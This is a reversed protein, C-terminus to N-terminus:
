VVFNWQCLRQCMLCQLTIKGSLQAVVVTSALLVVSITTEVVSVPFDVVTTEVVSVPFDVVTTEVVSVPFDVVTTEVVSAPFEVVSATPCPIYLFYM